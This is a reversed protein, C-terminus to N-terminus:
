ALCRRFLDIAQGILQRSLEADYRLGEDRLFAHAANVEHWTFNVGAAALTQRILDRGDAPVHPDQRGLVMMLEGRIEAARALSDDNQGAGLGRKHLDTPYFCATAGVGDLLAARFALHGGICPGFAGVRGNGAPHDRLFALVARNDDDYGRLAKTTKLRNGIESGAADYGLVTGAPLHEHYIEPLAVIFGHGALFAATRRIPGTLQFIESHFILGPHRGDGDPRLVLTRMPGSPTSLEVTEPERLTM